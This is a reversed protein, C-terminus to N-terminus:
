PCNRDCDEPVDPANGIFTMRAALAAASFPKGWQPVHRFREPLYDEDYGTAFVFPM